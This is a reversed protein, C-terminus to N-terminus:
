NSKKALGLAGIAERESEITDAVFKRYERQKDAEPVVQTAFKYLPRRTCEAEAKCLEALTAVSPSAGQRDNEGLLRHQM